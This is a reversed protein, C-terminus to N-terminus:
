ASSYQEPNKNKRAFYVGVAIMAVLYLAIIALDLLRLNNM